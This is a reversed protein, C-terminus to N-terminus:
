LDWKWPGCPFFLPKELIDECGRGVYCYFLEPPVLLGITAIGFVELKGTGLPIEPTPIIRPINQKNLTMFGIWFIYKCITQHAKQASYTIPCFQCVIIDLTISHISHQEAVEMTLRVDQAQLRMWAPPSRHLVILTMQRQISHLHMRTWSATPTFYRCVPWNAKTKPLHRSTNPAMRM